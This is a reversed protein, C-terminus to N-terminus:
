SDIKKNKSNLLGQSMSFLYNNKRMKEPFTTDVIKKINMSLNTWKDNTTTGRILIKRVENTFVTWNSEKMERYKYM